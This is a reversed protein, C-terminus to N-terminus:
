FFANKDKPKPQEAEIVPPAQIYIWERDQALNIMQEVPFWPKQEALATKMADFDNKLEVKELKISDVVEEPTLLGYIFRKTKFYFTLDGLYVIKGPPLEWTGFDEKKIVKYRQWREPTDKPREQFRNQIMEVGKLTYTGPKFQYLASKEYQRLDKGFRVFSHSEENQDQWVFRFSNMYHLAHYLKSVDKESRQKKIQEENQLLNFSVLTKQEKDKTDNYTEIWTIGMVVLTNEKSTPSEQTLLEYENSSCASVLLLLAALLGKLKFNGGM